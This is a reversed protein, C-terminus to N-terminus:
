EEQKISEINKKIGKVKLQDPADEILKNIFQAITSLFVESCGEGNGIKNLYTEWKATMSPSSLLNGEFSQCLIRGKKTVSM